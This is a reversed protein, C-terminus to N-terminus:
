IINTLENQCFYSVSFGCIVVKDDVNRHMMEQSLFQSMAGCSGPASLVLLCVLQSVSKLQKKKMGLCTANPDNNNLDLSM